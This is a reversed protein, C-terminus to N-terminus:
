LIGTWTARNNDSLALTRTTGEGVAIWTMTISVEAELRFRPEDWIRRIPAGNDDSWAIYNDCQGVAIWRGAGIHAVGFGSNTFTVLGLSTWTM